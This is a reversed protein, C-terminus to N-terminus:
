LTVGMKVSIFSGLMSQQSLLIVAKEAAIFSVIKISSTLDLINLLCFQIDDVGLYNEM